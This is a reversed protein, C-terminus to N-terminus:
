ERRRALRAQWDAREDDSMVQAIFMGRLAEALAAVNEEDHGPNALQHLIFGDIVAMFARAARAPDRVGLEALVSATVARFTDLAEAVPGRLAPNRAAELYVEYQGIADRLPSGATLVGAFLTAVEDFSTGERLAVRTLAKLEGVRDAVQLALAQETLEQISDFFYTAASASLGARAAVARHTIAKGGGEALLEGAARLLADRRRRSREQSPESKAAM